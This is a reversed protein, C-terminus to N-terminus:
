RYTIDVRTIYNNSNFRLIKFSESTVLHIIYATRLCVSLAVTKGKGHPTATCEINIYRKASNHAYNYVFCLFILKVFFVLSKM